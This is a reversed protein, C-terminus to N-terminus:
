LREMERQVTANVTDAIADLHIADDTYEEIDLRKLVHDNEDYVVIDATNGGDYKVRCIGVHWDYLEGLILEGIISGTVKNEM